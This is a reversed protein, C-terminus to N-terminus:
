NSAMYNMLFAKRCVSRNQTIENKLLEDPNLEAETIVMGFRVRSGYRQTLVLNNIGFLGLGAAVAAHKLSIDGMLRVADGISATAPVAMSTYGKNELFKATKYGLNNLVTNICEFELLYENRSNPLNLVAGRNLSLAFSVFSKATPLYDSPGHGQPASMLKETKGVGVLDAGQAYLFEKVKDTLTM